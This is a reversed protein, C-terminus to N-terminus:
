DFAIDLVLAMGGVMNSYPSLNMEEVIARRGKYVQAEGKRSYFSSDLTVM